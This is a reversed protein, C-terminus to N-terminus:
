FKPRIKFLGCFENAVNSAKMKSSIGEDVQDAETLGLTSFSFHSPGNLGEVADTGLNISNINYGSGAPGTEGTQEQEMNAFADPREPQNRPSQRQLGLPLQNTPPLPMYPGSGYQWPWYPFPPVTASPTGPFQPMTSSPVGPFSWAPTPFQMPGPMPPQSATSNATSGQGEDRPSTSGPTAEPETPADGSNDLPQQTAAPM